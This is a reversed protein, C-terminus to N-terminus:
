KKLTIPYHVETTASEESNEHYIERYPGSIEYNSDEIWNMLARHCEQFEEFPGNHVVSAVQTAPIEQIIVNGEGTTTKDIPIAVDVEEETFDNPSSYWIALCPGKQTLGKQQLFQCINGYANSLLEPVQENTPVHVHITALTMSPATKVVIELEPMANEKEIIQIRREIRQHKAFEETMRKESEARKQRLLDRLEGADQKSLLFHEIENLTLGLEKFVIIRNLKPLQEMRYYRYGSAEVVLAPKLLGSEDYHRLTAVTVGSIRAFDGIKIM